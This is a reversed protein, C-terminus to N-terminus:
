LAHWLTHTNHVQGRVFTQEGRLACLFKLRSEEVVLLGDHRPLTLVRRGSIMPSIIKTEHAFNGKSVRDLLKTHELVIDCHAHSPTETDMTALGLLTM